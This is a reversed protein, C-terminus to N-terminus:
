SREAVVEVTLQAVLDKHVKVPVTYTGLAKIPEELEIRRRDVQFGMASLREAIEAATVSGYLTDHEGAKKAVTLRVASLREALERAQEQEMAERLVWAKKRLELTKLNGPTAVLALKKPLLYNRAFGPAVEVVEGRAGVNRVDQQLVVKM